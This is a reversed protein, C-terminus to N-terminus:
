EALVNEAGPSAGPAAHEGFSNPDTDPARPNRRALSVGAHSSTLAPFRSVVQGSADILSLAEGSNALGSKGLQPVRVLTTDLALPVDVGNEVFDERVLLAYAGPAVSGDPLTTQGAGDSLRLGTLPAPVSGDNFLEIWESQPEAGLANALVENLVLHPEAARTRFQLEFAQEAGFRDVSRGRLVQESNPELGRWEFSSGASSPFLLTQADRELAFLMPEPGNRVMVRDDLVRVCAPGLALEGEDCQNLGPEMPAALALPTPDWLVGADFAPLLQWGPALQQALAVRACSEGSELSGVQGRIQARRRSPELEVEFADPLEVSNACYFAAAYASSAAPPWVRKMLAFESEMRVVVRALQGWGPAALTYTSGPELEAVPAVLTQAREPDFWANVPVRREILTEPLERRNIRGLHYDSLEGRFLWADDPDLPLAPSTVYFRAVREIGDVGVPEIAVRPTDPSSPAADPLCANLAVAVLAANAVPRSKRPSRM